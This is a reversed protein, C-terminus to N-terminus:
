RPLKVLVTMLFVWYGVAAGALLLVGLAKLSQVYQGCAFHQGFLKFAVPLALAGTIGLLIALFIISAVPDIRGDVFGCRICVTAGAIAAFAFCWAIVHISILWSCLIPKPKIM